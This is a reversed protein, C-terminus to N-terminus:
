IFKYITTTQYKEGKKLIPSPFEPQHIADPYYQTELCIASRKQYNTSEKGLQIGCAIFNGAYFQVGPLDTYVEMVRGSAVDELIAAKTLAADGKDIIYNHDYGGTYQLQAFDADIREGIVQRTLFDMPTGSVPALEGDPISSNEILHNYYSAFLTLYHNMASEATHGALNFYTHNTFNAITDQDSNGEYDIKLANDDTLTYTVAIEFNGPFGQDLHPSQLTFTVANDKTQTAWLRKHYGNFGSHLNNEGENKDLHYTVGNIEFSAGAIRNGNRGITSGFYSPNDLYAEICDYGLVVDSLVKNKDPVFLSVLIAGFDTVKAVWGNKNTITYLSAEEGAKYYGFSEKTVGM